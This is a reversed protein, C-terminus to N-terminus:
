GQWTCSERSQVVGKGSTLCIPLIGILWLGGNLRSHTSYTLVMMQPNIRVRVRERYGSGRWDLDFKKKARVFRRFVGWTWFYRNFAVPPSSEPWGFGFDHGAWTDLLRPSKWFTFDEVFKIRSINCIWLYSMNNLGDMLKPLIRFGLKSCM